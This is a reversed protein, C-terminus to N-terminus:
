IHLHRQLYLQDTARFKGGWRPIKFEILFFYLPGVSIHFPSYEGNLSVVVSRLSTALSHSEIGKNEWTKQAKGPEMPRCPTISCFNDAMTGTGKFPRWWWPTPLPPAYRHPSFKIQLNLGIEIQISARTSELLWELEQLRLKRMQFFFFTIVDWVGYFWQFSKIILLYISPCVSM